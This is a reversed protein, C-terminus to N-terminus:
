NFIISTKSFLLGCSSILSKDFISKGEIFITVGIAPLNNDDVINGTISNQAICIFPITFLLIVLINKKM